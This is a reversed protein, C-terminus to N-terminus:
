DAKKEPLASTTTASDGNSTAPTASPRQVLAPVPAGKTGSGPKPVMDTLTVGESLIVKEENAMAPGEKTNTVAFVVTMAIALIFCVCSGWALFENWRAAHNKRNLCEEDNKLYYRNALELQIQIAKQSILFSVLTMIIALGFLVWSAHLLWLGAAVNVGVVDRIFGVSFGLGVSSLSLVSKDFNVSNTLERALLDDRQKMYLARDDPTGVIRPEAYPREDGDSSMFCGGRLAWKVNGLDM